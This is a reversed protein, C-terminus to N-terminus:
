QVEKSPELLKKEFLFAIGVAVADSVDDSPFKYETQEPVLYGRVAAMVQLKDGKGSGTLAKKVTTPALEPLEGTVGNRVSVLDAIGMVKFLKQTTAAFRSFGKERVVYDVSHEKFMKDIRNYINDLKKGTGKVKNNDILCGEIIKVKDGVLEIVALGTGNLSLDLALVKM